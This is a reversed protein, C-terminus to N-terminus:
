HIFICNKQSRWVRKMLTQQIVERDAVGGFTSIKENVEQQGESSSRPSISEM